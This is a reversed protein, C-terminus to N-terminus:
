APLSILESFQLLNKLRDKWLLEDCGRERDALVHYLQCISLWAFEEKFEDFPTGLGAHLHYTKLCRETDPFNGTSLLTVLDWTPSHLTALDFDFLLPEQQTNHPMWFHHLFCDGHCITLGQKSKLRKRLSTKWYHVALPLLQKLQQHDEPPLIREPFEAVLESCLTVYELLPRPLDRYRGVGLYDAHEVLPEMAKHFATLAKIVTTQLSHSIRSGTFTQVTNFLQRHTDTQDPMILFSTEDELIGFALVPTTPVDSGAKITQHFIVEHEGSGAPSLKLVLRQHDKTTTITLKGIWSSHEGEIEELECQTISATPLNLFYGLEECQNAIERLFTPSSFLNILHSHM